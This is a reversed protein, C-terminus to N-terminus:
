GWYGSVGVSRGSRRTNATRRTVPCDFSVVCKLRLGENNPTSISVVPELDFGLGCDQRQSRSLRKSDFKRSVQIWGM